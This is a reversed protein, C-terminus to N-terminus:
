FAQPEIDPITGRYSDAWFLCSSPRQTSVQSENHWGNIDRPAVHKLLLNMVADPFSRIWQLSWQSSSFRVTLYSVQSCLGIHDGNGFSVLVYSPNPHDILRNLLYEWWLSNLNTIILDWCWAGLEDTGQMDVLIDDKCFVWGRRCVLCNWVVHLREWVDLHLESPSFSNRLSDTRHVSVSLM